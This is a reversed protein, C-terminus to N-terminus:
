NAVRVVDYGRKQLLEVVSRPGILHLAGVAVFGAVDNAAPGGGAAGGSGGREASVAEIAAIWAANRRYVMEETMADYEDATFGHALAAARESAGAALMRDADGALYAALMERQMKAGGDPDDLMLKLMRVDLLRELMEVQRSALELYVVRKHDRRAAELLAHDMAQDTPPLERTSMWIAAIVPSRPDAAAARDKGLIRELKAFYAPGLDEALSGSARRGLEMLSPDSNDSEMAFTRASALKQWVSRPLRDADIGIHMTGFLYTVRGDKTAAWLFPHTIADAATPREVQRPPERAVPQEDARRCGGFLLVALVALVIARLRM